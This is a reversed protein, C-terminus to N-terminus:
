KTIKSRQLLSSSHLRYYLGKLCSDIQYTEYEFYDLLPFHKIAM